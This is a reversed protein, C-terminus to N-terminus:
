IIDYLSGNPLFETVITPKQEGHFNYPNFGVFRVISPHNLESLTTIERNLNQYEEKMTKSILKLSIKAALIEGSKKHKIKYVEGFGGNGIFSIQEYEKLNLLYKSNM